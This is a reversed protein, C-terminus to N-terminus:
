RAAVLVGGPQHPFLSCQYLSGDRMDDIDIGPYAPMIIRNSVVVMDKDGELGIAIIWEKKIECTLVVLKGLQYRLCMGSLLQRYKEAASKKVLCHFGPYYSLRDSPSGVVRASLCRQNTQMCQQGASYGCGRVPAIYKYQPLRGSNPERSLIVVKYVPLIEPMVEKISQTKRKNFIAKLSM